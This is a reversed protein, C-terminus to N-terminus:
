RSFRTPIPSLIAEPDLWMDAWVAIVGVSGGGGGGGGTDFAIVNEGAPSLASGGRAGPTGGPTGGSGGQARAMGIAGNDGLGGTNGDDGGGAGGGGNCALTGGAVDVELSDLGIYGGAGGGGGGADQNEGQGGQGSAAITGSISISELATLQIAGGGAGGLGSRGSGGEGGDGGPCGGRPAFPMDSTMQVLLGGSGGDGIGDNGVNENSDGDGGDGGLAAFGGGGGGGAGGADDEGAGAALPECSAPNAGAGQGDNENSSVTIVGAVTIDSWSALVLPRQGVARLTAESGIAIHQASVIVLASQEDSHHAVEDGAPDRLSRTDTNYVYTGPELLELGEESVSLDCPEFHEAQWEQCPEGTPLEGTPPEGTPPEGTLSPPEFACGALGLAM